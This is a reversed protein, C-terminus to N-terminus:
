DTGNSAEKHHYFCGDFDVYGVYRREGDERLKILTVGCVWGDMGYEVKSIAGSQVVSHINFDHGIEDECVDVVDGMRVYADDDGDGEDEYMCYINTGLIVPIRAHVNERATKM